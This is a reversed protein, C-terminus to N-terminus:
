GKGGRPHRSGPPPIHLLLPECSFASRFSRIKTRSFGSEGQSTAAEIERLRKRVVFPVDDLPDCAGPEGPLEMVPAREWVSNDRDRSSRYMSTAVSTRTRYTSTAASTRTRGSTLLLTGWRALLSGLQYTWTKRSESQHENRLFVLFGADRGKLLPFM